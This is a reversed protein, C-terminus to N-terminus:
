CMLMVKLLHIKTTSTFRCINRLGIVKRLIFKLNLIKLGFNNNSHPARAYSIYTSGAAAAVKALFEQRRTYSDPDTTSSPEAPNYSYEEESEEINRPRHKTGRTFRSRHRKTTRETSENGESETWAEMFAEYQPDPYDNNDAPCL